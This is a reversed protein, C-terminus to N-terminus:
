RRGVTATPTTPDRRGAAAVPQVTIEVLARAATRRRCGPSSDALYEPDDDFLVQDVAAVRPDASLTRVIIM